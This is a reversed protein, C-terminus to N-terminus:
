GRRASRSRGAASASGARGATATAIAPGRAGKAYRPRELAADVEARQPDALLRRAGERAISELTDAIVAGADLAVAQPTTSAM